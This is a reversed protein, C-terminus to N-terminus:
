TRDLILQIKRLDQAIVNGMGTLSTLFIRRGEQNKGTEEIILGIDKLTNYSSYFGSRGLGAKHLSEILQTKTIQPRNEQLTLLIRLTGKEEDLQTFKSTVFRSNTCLSKLQIYSARAIGLIECFFCAHVQLRNTGHDHM